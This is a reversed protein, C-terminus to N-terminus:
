RAVRERSVQKGKHTLQYSTTKPEHPDTHYIVDKDGKYFRLLAVKPKVHMPLGEYKAPGKLLSRSHRSGIKPSLPEFYDKLRRHGHM